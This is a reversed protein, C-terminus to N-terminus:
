DIWKRVYVQDGPFFNKNLVRELYDGKTVIKAGNCDKREKHPIVKVYTANLGHSEIQSKIMYRTVWKGLNGIYYSRLVSDENKEAIPIFDTMELTYLFKPIKPIKTVKLLNHPIGKYNSVMKSASAIGLTPFTNILVQQPVKKFMM